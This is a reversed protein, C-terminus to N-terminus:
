KSNLPNNIDKRLKLRIRYKRLEDVVSVSFAAIFLTVWHYWQTLPVVHFALGIPTYLMLLQLALSLGTAWFLH